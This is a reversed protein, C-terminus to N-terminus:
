KLRAGGRGYECKMCRDFLVRTPQQGPSTSIGVKPCEYCCFLTNIDMFLQEKPKPCFKLFLEVEEWSELYSVRMTCLVAPLDANNNPRYGFTAKFITPRQQIEYYLTRSTQSLQLLTFTSCHSYIEFRLEIPVELLSTPNDTDSLYLWRDEKETGHSAPPPYLRIFLDLEDQGELRHINSIRLASAPKIELGQQSAYGLSSKYISPHQSIEYGISGTSQLLQLLTFASCQKYIELRIELPLNLLSRTSKAPVAGVSRATAADELTTPSM